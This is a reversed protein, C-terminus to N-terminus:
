FINTIIDPQLLRKTANKDTGKYDSAKATDHEVARTPTLRVYPHVTLLWDILVANMADVRDFCATSSSTAM